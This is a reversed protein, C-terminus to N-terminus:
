YKVCIEYCSINGAILTMKCNSFDDSYPLLDFVSRSVAKACHNIVRILTKFLHKEDIWDLHHNQNKEPM